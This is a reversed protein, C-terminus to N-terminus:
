IRIQLGALRSVRSFCVALTCLISAPAHSLISTDKMGPKKIEDRLECFFDFICRHDGIRLQEGHMPSTGIRLKKHMRTKARASSGGKQGSCTALRGFARTRVDTAETLCHGEKTDRRHRGETRSAQESSGHAHSAHTAHTANGAEAHSAHRERRRHRSRGHWHRGLLSAFSYIFLIM